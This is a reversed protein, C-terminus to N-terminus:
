HKGNKQQMLNIFEEIPNRRNNIVTNVIAMAFYFENPHNMKESVANVKDLGKLDGDLVKEVINVIIECREDSIGLSTHLVASDNIEVLKFPNKSPSSEEFSVHITFFAPFWRHLLKKM